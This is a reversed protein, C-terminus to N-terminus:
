RAQFWMTRANTFMDRGGVMKPDATAGTSGGIGCGADIRRQWRGDKGSEAPIRPRVRTAATTRPAQHQPPQPLGFKQEQQEREKEREKMQDM